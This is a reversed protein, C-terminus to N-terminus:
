NLPGHEVVPAPLCLSCLSGIPVEPGLATVDAGAALLLLGNDPGILVDGRGTVLAVPLRPTGVGPDVVGVHVGVPLYPLAQQLLMAGEVIAYPTVEDSLVLVNASPAIRYVVGACVATYAAGFDTTLSVFPREGPAARSDSV